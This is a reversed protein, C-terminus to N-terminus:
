SAEIENEQCWPRPWNDERQQLWALGNLWVSEKLGEILLGRTGIDAPNKIVKVHRWQNITSNEMKEAVRNAVFEQHEKHAAQLWNLMTSSDTWYYTKEIRVDHRNLIQKRLRAGYVASQLELKPKPM